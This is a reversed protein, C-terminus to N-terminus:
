RPPIRDVEQEWHKNFVQSIHTAMENIEWGRLQVVTIQFALGPGELILSPAIDRAWTAGFFRDLEALAPGMVRDCLDDVFEQSCRQKRWSDTLVVHAVAERPRGSRGLPM